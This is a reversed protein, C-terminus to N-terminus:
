LSGVLTLEAARMASKSLPVIAEQFTLLLIGSLPVCKSARHMCTVKDVSLLFSCILMFLLFSRLFLLSFWVASHDGEKMVAVLAM